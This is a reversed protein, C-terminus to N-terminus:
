VLYILEIDLLLLNVERYGVQMKFKSVIILSAVDGFTILKVPYLGLGHCFTTCSAIVAAPGLASATNTAFDGRCIPLDSRM